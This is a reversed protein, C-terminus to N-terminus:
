RWFVLANLILASVGIAIGKAGNSYLALVLYGTMTIWYATKYVM